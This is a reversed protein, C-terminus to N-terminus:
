GDAKDNLKKYCRVLEDIANERVDLSPLAPLYDNGVLLCLFVQFL